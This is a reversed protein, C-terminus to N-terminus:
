EDLDKFLHGATTNIEEVVEEVIEKIPEVVELDEFLERTNSKGFISAPFKIVPPPVPSPQPHGTLGALIIHELEELMHQVQTPHRDTDLIITFGHASTVKEVLEYRVDDELYGSMMKDKMYNNILNETMLEQGHTLRCNPTFDLHYTAKSIM